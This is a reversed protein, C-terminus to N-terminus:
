EQCFIHPALLTMNDEIICNSGNSEAVSFPIPNQHAVPNWKRLLYYRGRLNNLPEAIQM